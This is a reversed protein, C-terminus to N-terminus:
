FHGYFLSNWQPSIEGSRDRRFEVELQWRTPEVHFWERLKHPIPNKSPDFILFLFKRSIEGATKKQIGLFTVMNQRAGVARVPRAKRPGGQTSNAASPARNGSWGLHYDHLEWRLVDQHKWPLNQNSPLKLCKSVLHIAGWVFLYGSVTKFSPVNPFGRM